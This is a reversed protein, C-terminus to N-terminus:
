ESRLIESPRMLSAKFAPVIGALISIGGTVLVVFALAEYSLQNPLSEGYFMPNFAAHGQIKSLLSVLGDIHNLTYIAAGTGILSGTMGMIMGCFGFITAISRSTAGMARMIGIELKKDNVLIILMSIINSCAVLIIILSIISLLTKDSQLQNLLPKTFDYERYTQVDWYKSLGKAELRAAIQEKIQEAKELDDFRVNIGNTTSAEEQEHSSRIIATLEENALIFKGGIPIIGPDYFGAIYVPQRQEQVTSVTPTYFSLYGRDGLKVGAERFTKPLLIGDGFDPDHTLAVGDDTQKLWLPDSSATADQIAARSFRLPGIPTMGGLKHGQVTYHVDFAVENPRLAQGISARQIEAEMPVDNELILPVKPNYGAGLDVDVIRVSGGERTLKEELAPLKDANQPIVIHDLNEGNYFALGKLSADAPLHKRPIRWGRPPTRLEGVSVHDFFNWLKEQIQEKALYNFTDAADEQINDSAIALMHFLNELDDTTTSVVTKTVTTNHPDLSGLYAAQNMFAQTPYPGTHRLLRLRLNSSTVEYDRARTGPISEISAYAEKVLDILTGDDNVLPPEWMPPPEEDVNPNYPNTQEAHLKEGITKLSYGAESSISDIRYYYSNYYAETPVVRVPATLATLKQIWGRELGHTVSFFVLLLWVVLAIVLISILSIISVSLQRWRPVLYKRAVTFEFM